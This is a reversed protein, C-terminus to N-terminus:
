SRSRSSSNRHPLAIDAFDTAMVDAVKCAVSDEEDSVLTRVPMKAYTNVLILGLSLADLQCLDQSYQPGRKESVGVNVKETWMFELWIMACFALSSQLGLDKHKKAEQVQWANMWEDAM